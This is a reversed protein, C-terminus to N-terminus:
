RNGFISTLIPPPQINHNIPMCDGNTDTDDIRGFDIRILIRCARQLGHTNRNFTKGRLRIKQQYVAAKRIGEGRGCRGIMRPSLRLMDM